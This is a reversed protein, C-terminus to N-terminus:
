NIIFPFGHWVSSGYTTLFVKEHDNPDVIVRHGWHFDYGALKKWTKGYDDSRYAAKNFTNCYIRGPHYPDVTVDYVYQNEDFIRTWTEGGDESLTIGGPMELMENGGTARAIDGGILDSLSIDAWSALYIRNSNEPDIEIGSPFLLGNSVKLEKWTEAGDKSKYVAGSYFGRGKEGNKHMPTPSIVLFLDGNPSLTLEFAATNDGIGNNKLTWSKGGDISKFVGKSYVSAYLVRNDSSSKPDLVISTAPSDFGMGENSPKWTRGGDLSVCVGGKGYNKWNPNRTMKGRPFDHLSSWVSWVKDKVEPDFVMWYCTNIWENPVGTTSREWSKGGNFSHHYGIDTYSIAIHQSDFPDFHIGYATTVDLGNTTFTHDAQENSYIENWTEGGDITKMVRYWDTVVAINGDSPFVGVDLLRIYEGGFAKEVWADKLNAVGIGDKVGYQGSGGGGKWVWKWNEGQDNSKLAGYWYLPKEGGTKEEYRNSVLYVQEADYEACSVMSYSPKIGSQQNTILSNQLQTWTEGQDESFWVESYGFEGDIPQNADHHLAYFIMKDTNAVTGSSFSFAPAMEKPLEKRNFTHAVKDFVIIADVTSIYVQDKASSSNTYLYEIRQELDEKNWTKGDDFSYFFLPGMSFYLAGKLAPDVRIAGIRGYREDYLSNSKTKINFSAHDGKYESKEIEEPLPFLQKWTKGGDTSKNLFTAGIYVTNEDNPDYAYTSAGNELNIQNYSTGGDKTLYSGTMDCRLLFDNASNYSFTPIFTSGGGGPGLKTWNLSGEEKSQNDTSECGIVSFLLLLVCAINTLRRLFSPKVSIEM